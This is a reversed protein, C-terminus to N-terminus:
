SQNGSLSAGAPPELELAVHTYGHQLALGLIRKRDLGAPWVADDPLRLIVLREWTEVGCPLGIGRLATELPTM